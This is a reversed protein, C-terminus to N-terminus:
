IVGPGAYEYVVEDFGDVPFAYLLRLPVSGTNTVFHWASAPIFVTTGAEAPHDSGDIHVLGSGAIVYYVEAVPHRHLAGDTPAGPQIEATGVTLGETPTRDASVLTRWSVIDGRREEACDRERVIHPDSM